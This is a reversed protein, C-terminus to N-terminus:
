ACHKQIVIVAEWRYITRLSLFASELYKVDGTLKYDDIRLDYYFRRMRIVMDPDFDKMKLLDKIELDM